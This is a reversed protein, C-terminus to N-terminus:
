ERVGEIRDFLPEADGRIASKAFVSLVHPLNAADREAELASQAEVDVWDEVKRYVRVRWTPTRPM